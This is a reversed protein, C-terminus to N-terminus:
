SYGASICVRKLLVLKPNLRAGPLFTHESENFYCAVFIDIINLGLTLTALHLHPQRTLTDSSAKFTPM